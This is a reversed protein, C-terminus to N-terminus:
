HCNKCPRVKGAKRAEDLTGSKVTKSRKLSPCDRTSHYVEGSPTWYVVSTQPESPAPNSPQSPAPDPNSPQSPAPDPAPEPAPITKGEELAYWGTGEAKWGIAVLRDNEEQNTTYNHTATREFPNFQRLVAVSGGSYWGVNENTWGLAVLADREELDLVYHHDDTYSNFLRYVPDGTTPAVWGVGEATWGISALTDREQTSATYFHEGTYQNYLRYMDVGDDARSAAPAVVLAVLVGLLTALVGRRLIKARM